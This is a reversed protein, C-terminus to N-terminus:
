LNQDPSRPSAELVKKPPTELLTQLHTKSPSNRYKFAGRGVKPSTKRGHTTQMYLGANQNGHEEEIKIIPRNMYDHVVKQKMDQKLSGLKKLDVYGPDKHRLPDRWPDVTQQPNILADRVCIASQRDVNFPMEYKQIDFHVFPKVIKNPRFNVTVNKTEMEALPKVESKPVPLYQLKLPSGAKQSKFGSLTAELREEAM